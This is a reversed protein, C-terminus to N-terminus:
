VACHDGVTASFGRIRHDGINGHRHIGSIYLRSRRAAAFAGCFVVSQEHDFFLESFTRHVSVGVSIRLRFNKPATHRVTRRATRIRSICFFLRISNCFPPLHPISFVILCAAFYPWVLRPPLPVRYRFDAIAPTTDRFSPQQSAIRNEKRQTSSHTKRSRRSHVMDSPSGLLM